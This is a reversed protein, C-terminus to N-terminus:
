EIAVYLRIIIHVYTYRNTPPIKLCHRAVHLHAALAVTHRTGALELGAPFHRRVESYNPFRELIAKPVGHQDRLAVQAADGRQGSHPARSSSPGVSLPLPFMASSSGGTPISTATSALPAGSIEGLLEEVILLRGVKALPVRGRVDGAGRTTPAVLGAGATVSAAAQAAPSAVVHDPLPVDLHTSALKVPTAEHLTLVAGHFFPDGNALSRVSLSCVRRSCHAFAFALTPASSAVIFPRDTGFRLIRARVWDRTIVRSVRILDSSPVYFRYEPYLRIVM